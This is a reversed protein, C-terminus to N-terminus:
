YSNLVDLLHRILKSILAPLFCIKFCQNGLLNQKIPVPYRCGLMTYGGTNTTRPIQKSSPVDFRSALSLRTECRLKEDQRSNRPRASLVNTQSNLPSFDRAITKGRKADKLWEYRLGFLDLTVETKRYTTTLNRQCKNPMPSRYGNCRVEDPKASRCILFLPFLAKLLCLNKLM